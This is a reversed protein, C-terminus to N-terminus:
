RGLVQRYMNLYREVVQPEDFLAEARARGRSAFRQGLHPDSLIALTAEAMAAVDGPPCLRGAEEEGLLEPLGGVRSAVVPLSCSMAELAALGFAEEASPLLLVETMSLLAVVDVRSGPARVRESVGLRRALQQCAAREPGDGVLLLRCPREAAVRALVAVTDQSRKVPRFNSLHLLLAEEDAAWCRRQAPPPAQRRFVGVDVFGPIVPIPPLSFSREAQCALASSVATIGDCRALTHRLVAAVAPQQGLVSVDTGHLTLLLPLRRRTGLMSRALDASVVHPVAHHVHLLDLQAREAVEALRAAMALLGLDGTFPCGAIPDVSWYRLGPRPQRPWWPPRAEAVLHVCHGRKALALALRCATRVSGGFGRHCLLGIRM